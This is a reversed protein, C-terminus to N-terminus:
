SIYYLQLLVMILHVYSVVGSRERGSTDSILMFMESSACLWLPCSIQTNEKLICFLTLGVLTRTSLVLDALIQNSTM